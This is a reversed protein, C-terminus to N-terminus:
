ERARHARVSYRERCSLLMINTDNQWAKEVLHVLCPYTCRVFISRRGLGMFHAFTAAWTM